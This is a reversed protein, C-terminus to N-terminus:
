PNESILEEVRAAIRQGIVSSFGLFKDRVKGQKDLLIITPLGTVGYKRQVEDPTITIPYPIDMSKVYRHVSSVDGRDVNMGIVELEKQQHTKYIQVLIPISEKCPGCWTAWFDLLVVKGRFNSLLIEQGDLTRLTFDPALVLEKEEKVCHPLLLAAGCFLTFIILWRFLPRQM